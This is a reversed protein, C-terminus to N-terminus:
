DATQRFIKLNAVHVSWKVDAPSLGEVALLDITLPELTEPSTQVFVELFPAVPRIRDGDKFRIKGPEPTYKRAVEGSEPEIELTEEPIIQRFDLPASELPELRYAELPVNSSGFRGIAFPPLIRLSLIPM